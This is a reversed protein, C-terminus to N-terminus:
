VFQKGKQVGGCNKSIKFKVGFLVNAAFIAGYCFLVWFTNTYFLSLIVPVIIDLDFLLAFQQILRTISIEFSSKNPSTLLCRWTSIKLNLEAAPACNNMTTGKLSPLVYKMGKNQGLLNFVIPKIGKNQELLNFM